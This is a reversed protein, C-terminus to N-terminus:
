TDISGIIDGMQACIPAAAVFGTSLIFGARGAPKPSIYLDCRRGEVSGVVAETIVAWLILSRDSEADRAQRRERQLDTTTVIQM